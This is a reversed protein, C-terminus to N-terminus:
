TLPLDGYIYLKSAHLDEILVVKAPEKGQWAFANSCLLSGPPLEHELKRMAGPFLYCYILAADVLEEKFFDKRRFQLNKVGCLLARCRAVWFPIPSIEFAVVQLQPYQKALALAIAGWGGGLEYIIGKELPPLHHFLTAKVKTSTPM